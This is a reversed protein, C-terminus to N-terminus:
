QSQWGFWRKELDRTISDAQEPDYDWSNPDKKVEYESSIEIALHPKLGAHQEVIKAACRFPCGDVVAVQRASALKELLSERDLALAPLCALKLGNRKVLDLAVKGALKGTNSAGDCTFIMVESTSNTESM